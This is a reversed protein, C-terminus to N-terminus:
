QNKRQNLAQPKWLLLYATGWIAYLGHIMLTAQAAQVDSLKPAGDIRPGPGVDGTQLARVMIVVLSWHYLTSGLALLSHHSSANMWALICPIGMACLAGIAWMKAALGGFVCIGVGPFMFWDKSGSLGSVLVALPLLTETLGSVLLFTRLM